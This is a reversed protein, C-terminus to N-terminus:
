DSNKLSVMAKLLKRSLREKDIGQGKYVFFSDVENGPHTCFLNKAWAEGAISCPLDTFVVVIFVQNEYLRMKEVYKKCAVPWWAYGNEKFKKLEARTQVLDIITVTKEGVLWSNKSPTPTKWCDDITYIMANKLTSDTKALENIVEYLRNFRSPMSEAIFIRM